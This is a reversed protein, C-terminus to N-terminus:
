RSCVIASGLYTGLDYGLKGVTTATLFNGVIGGLATEALTGTNFRISEWIGSSTQKVPITEPGVRVLGVGKIALAVANWKSPNSEAVGM